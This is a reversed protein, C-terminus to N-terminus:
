DNKFTRGTTFPARGAGQIADFLGTTRVPPQAMGLNAFPNMVPMEGYTPAPAAAPPVAPGTPWAYPPPPATQVVITQPATPAAKASRATERSAQVAQQRAIHAQLAPLQRPWRVDVFKFDPFAANLQATLAKSNTDTQVYIVAGFVVILVVALCAMGLAAYIATVSQNAADAAQLIATGVPGGPGFDGGIGNLTENLVTSFNKQLANIEQQTEAQSEAIANFAAERANTIEMSILSQNNILAIMLQSENVAQNIVSQDLSIAPGFFPLPITISAIVSLNNTQTTYNALSFNLQQNLNSQEDIYSSFNSAFSNVTFTTQELQIQISDITAVNIATLGQIATTAAQLDSFLTLTNNVLINIQDISLGTIGGIIATTNTDIPISQFCLENDGNYISITVVDNPCLTFQTAFLSSPGASLTQTQECGKTSSVDVTIQAGATSVPNIALIKCVLAGDVPQCLIPEPFPTVPIPCVDAQLVILQSIPITVIFELNLIQTGPNAIAVIPLLAGNPAANNEGLGTITYTAAALGWGNACSFSSDILQMAVSPVCSIGFNPGCNGCYGTHNAIYQGFINNFVLTYNSTQNYFNWAERMVDLGSLVTGNANSITMNPDLFNILQVSCQGTQAWMLQMQNVFATVEASGAELLTNNWWLWLPEGTVDTFNQSYLYNLALATQVPPSNLSTSGWTLGTVQYTGNPLGQNLFCSYVASSILFQNSTDLNPCRGAIATYNINHDNPGSSSM